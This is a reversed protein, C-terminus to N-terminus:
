FLSRGAATFMERGNYLTTIGGLGRIVVNGAEGNQRIVQVGPVRGLIEAVNKDPFKGIDDAVISDIVQEANRKINQASQAAQRTGTVLVVARNGNDKDSTEAAAVPTVPTDAAIEQAGVTASSILGAGALAAVTARLAFSPCSPATARGPCTRKM